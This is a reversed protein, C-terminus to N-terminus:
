GAWHLVIQSPVTLSAFFLKISTRQRRWQTVMPIVVNGLDIVGVFVGVGAGPLSHTPAQSPGQIPHIHLFLSLDPFKVLSDFISSPNGYRVQPWLIVGQDSPTRNTSNSFITQATAVV